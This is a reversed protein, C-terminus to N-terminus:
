SESADGRNRGAYIAWITLGIALVFGVINAILASQDGQGTEMSASRFALVIRAILSPLYDAAIHIGILLAGIGFLQKARLPQLEVDPDRTLMRSFSSAGYFLIASFLLLSAPTLLFANEIFMEAFPSREVGTLDPTNMRLALAQPLSSIGLVAFWLAMLRCGLFAADRATM